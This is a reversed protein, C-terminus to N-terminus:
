LKLKLSIVCGIIVCVAGFQWVREISQDGSVHHQHNMNFILSSVFSSVIQPLVVFVNHIGLVCGASLEEEDAVTRDHQTILLNVNQETDIPKMLSAADSSKTRTRKRSESASATEIADFSEGDLVEDESEEYRSEHLTESMLQRITRVSERRTSICEGIIAFPVWQTVAVSFGTLTLIAMKWYLEQNLLSIGGLIVGLLLLSLSWIREVRISLKRILWPLTFATFSSIVSVVLMVMSGQRTAQLVPTDPYYHLVSEKIYETLFFNFPFWGVWAFFQVLLVLKLTTPFLRMSSMLSKFPNAFGTTRRRLQCRSALDSPEERVYACTIGVCVVLVLIALLVLAKMQTQAFVMVSVLEISGALYGCINGLSIMASAWSNGSQQYQLPLQDVILARAAAQVVNICFDLIYFGGIVLVIPVWDGFDHQVISSECVHTIERAYGILLLSLIIGVTGGILFPRRRGWRSRLNDSWTGILPQIILGSLPGALWALTLASKSLGFTVLYPTGYGM